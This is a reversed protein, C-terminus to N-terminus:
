GHSCDREYLMGKLLIFYNIADTIKENIYFHSYSVDPNKAMNKVSIYHKLFMGWLAQEQTCDDSKAADKFHEFVDDDNAYEKNKNILVNKIIEM